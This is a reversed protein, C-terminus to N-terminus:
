RVVIIRSAVLGVDEGGCTGIAFGAYATVVWTGVPLHLEPDQMWEAYLAANLDEASYAGGKRFPYSRWEGDTLTHGACPLDWAPRTAFSGDLQRVTFGAVLEFGAGLDVTQTQGQYRLQAVIDIAEDISYLHKSSTLELDFIGASTRTSAFPGGATPTRTVRVNAADVNSTLDVIVAQWIGMMACVPAPEVDVPLRSLQIEIGTRSPVFSLTESSGCSGGIWEIQLKSRDAQPNYATPDGPVVHPEATVCSSVLGTGDIVIPSHEDPPACNIWSEPPAIAPAQPSVPEQRAVEAVVDAAPVDLSMRLTIVHDLVLGDCVVDAPMPNHAILEYAAGEGAWLLDLTEYNACAETWTVELTRLDGDPNSVAIAKPETGAVASAECSEVLDAPDTVAPHWRRLEGLSSTIPGCVLLGSSPTPPPDWREQTEVRVRDAPVDKKLQIRVTRRAPYAYDCIANSTEVEAIIVRYEDLTAGFQIDISDACPNGPWVIELTTLDGDPNTVTLVTTDFPNSSSAECSVVEGIYDILTLDPLTGACDMVGLEPQPTPTLFPDPATRVQADVIDASVDRTLQIRLELRTFPGSCPQDHIQSALLQYRDGETSVTARFEVDIRTFCGEGQWLVNLRRLGGDPNTVIPATEVGDPSTRDFECSEVEDIYDTITVDLEGTCDIIGLPGPTPTTPPHSESPQGISFNVASAAVPKILHIQVSHRVGMADCDVAPREGRLGLDEENGSVIFRMEADCPTGMWVVLLSNPDSGVNVVALQDLIGRPGAPECSEVLGSFDRMSAFGMGDVADEPVCAFEVGGVPVSSAAPGQTLRPAVFVLALLIAAISAIGAFASWRSTTSVRSPRTDIAHRVSSLLQRRSWDPDVRVSEARRALEDHLQQDDM